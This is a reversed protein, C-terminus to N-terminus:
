ELVVKPFFHQIALPPYNSRNTRRSSHCYRPIEITSLSFLKALLGNLRGIWSHVPRFDEIPIFKRKNSLHEFNSIYVKNKTLTLQLGNM